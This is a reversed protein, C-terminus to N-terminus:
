PEGNRRVEDEVIQDLRADAIQLQEYLKAASVQHDECCESKIIEELAFELTGIDDSTLFVSARPETRM